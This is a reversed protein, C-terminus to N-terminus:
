LSYFCELNSRNKDRVNECEINSIYLDGTINNRISTGLEPTDRLSKTTNENKRMQGITTTVVVETLQSLFVNILQAALSTQSTTVNLISKM